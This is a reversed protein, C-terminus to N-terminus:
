QNGGILTSLGSRMAKNQELNLWKQKITEHKKKATVDTIIKEHGTAFWFGIKDLQIGEFLEVFQMQLSPQSQILEEIGTLEIPKTTFSDNELFKIKLQKFLVEVEDSSLLKLDKNVSKASTKGGILKKILANLKPSLPASIGLYNKRDKIVFLYPKLSNKEFFPQISAWKTVESQLKWDELIINDQTTEDNGNKDTSQAAELAVLEICIGEESNAVSSAIHEFVTQPLFMEALMLKALVSVNIANGFGREESVRMRLNLANLFRKIQRPNGKTGASLIPTIQEALLMSPQVETYRDKLVYKIEEENIGSGEWPKQLARKGLQLIADFEESSEGLVSGILLLTIYIRTETEGLSPIRMPVQILKELYSRSYTASNGTNSLDPFHQKVSYEIMAEDAGVIFVTQPLFVFLRIAELTEITTEPLCRDLDDILVILRKIKAKEILDEFAKRFEKIEKPVNKSATEKILGTVDINSLETNEIAESASAPNAIFSKVGEVINKIQGPAPMGTFATFALGGASKAAKLWDISRFINKVQETAKTLIPRREILETVIGEIVAIKADEFGQFQWGNFKICVIEEEEEFTGKIMELISSKGAGWDGHVGITMPKDLTESILGVITKAIAENNLLDVKTEQDTIIGFSSKNTPMKASTVM